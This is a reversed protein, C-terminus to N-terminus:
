AIVEGNEDLFRRDDMGMEDFIVNWREMMNEDWLVPYFGATLYNKIAARRFDDTTLWVRPVCGWLRELGKALMAHGIKKGRVEELAAVMHIWGDGAEDLHATLTAVPRKGAKECVFFVDTEPKICQIGSIADAYAQRNADPGCLGHRCIEVWADIDADDAKNINRFFFDEHLPYPRVETMIKCMKLQKM